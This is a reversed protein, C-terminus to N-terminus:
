LENGLLDCNIILRTNQAAVQALSETKEIAIMKLISHILRKQFINSIIRLM